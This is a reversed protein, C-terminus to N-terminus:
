HGRNDREVHAAPQLLEALAIALQGFLGLLLYVVAAPGAADRGWAHRVPGRGGMRRGAFGGWWWGAPWRGAGGVPGATGRRRLEDAGDRRQCSSHSGGDFSPHASDLDAGGPLVGYEGVFDLVRGPVQGGQEVAARMDCADIAPRPEPEAAPDTDVVASGGHDIGCVLQQCGTLLWSLALALRTRANGVNGPDRQRQRPSPCGVAARPM